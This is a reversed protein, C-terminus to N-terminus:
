GSVSAFNTQSTMRLSPPHAIPIRSKPRSLATLRSIACLSRSFAMMMTLHCNRFPTGQRFINQCSALGRLTDNLALSDHVSNIHVAARECPTFPSVSYRRHPSTCETAMDSEASTDTDILSVYRVWFHTGDRPVWYNLLDM